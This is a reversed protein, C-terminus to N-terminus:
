EGDLDIGLHNAVEDTTYRTDEDRIEDFQEEIVQEERVTMENDSTM